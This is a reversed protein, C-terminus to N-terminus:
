RQFVRGSVPVHSSGTDEAEATFDEAEVTFDEAEVTFDEAEAMSVAATSAMAEM